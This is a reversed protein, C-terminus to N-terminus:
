RPDILGLELAVVVAAARTSVGLRDYIHELHHRVTKDTIGLDVAVARTSAGVAIRELVEAERESLRGEVRRRRRPAGRAEDVVAEVGAEDLRGRRVEERLLAATAEPTRAARYPRPRTAAEYADAAALLRAPVSLQTAPAARHYGSGDLREHHSGALPALQALPAARALIRETQYPHLRVVEWEAPTLARPKDHVSSPIAVRGLDHLLASRRVATREDAPLGVRGAAGGALAAVTRSHGVLWPAKLDAFDAFAEAVADIESEGLPLRRGAPELDLVADWLAADDLTPWPPDARVAAEWAAVLDPDFSTGSQHRVGEVSAEPGGRRCALDAAKAVHLIRAALPIAEGRLGGIGKGNWREFVALLGFRVDDAVGMRRALADGVECHARLGNVMGAEGARLARAVAIPRLLAPGASGAHRIVLGLNARLDDPDTVAADARFRQEDTALDRALDASDAVCGIGHLLAVYFVNARATEDLGLHRALHGALWTTRLCHESHLGMGLDAALSLGALAEALRGPSREM